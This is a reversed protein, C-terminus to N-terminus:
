DYISGYGLINMGPYVASREHNLLKPAMEATSSPLCQVKTFGIVIIAERKGNRRQWQLMMGQLYKGLRRTRGNRHLPCSPESERFVLIVDRM